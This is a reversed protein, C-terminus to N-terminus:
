IRFSSLKDAADGADVAELEAADSAENYVPNEFSVGTENPGQPGVLERSEATATAVGKAAVHLMYSVGLLAVLTIGVIIGAVASGPFGNENRTPRTAGIGTHNDNSKGSSQFFLSMAENKTREAVAAADQASELAEWANEKATKTARLSAKLATCDIASEGEGADEVAIEKACVDIRAYIEDYGDSASTHQQRAVAVARQAAEHDRLAVEYLEESSAIDDKNDANSNRM